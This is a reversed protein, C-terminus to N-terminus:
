LSVRIPHLHVGEIGNAFANPVAKRIINYSGNVDSNILQGNNCNFLGRVIRRSKDYTEKGIIENDLFSCGSTYSEETTIVTIGKENAKYIIQKILKDYPISIFNQNASKVLKSEQKWTKNLGIIITNINLGECYNVISKSACHLYYDIKNDRKLQLKDLKNSWNKNHRKKLDSQLNAKKKNYYQNISKLPKGNIVIPQLGLNNTLTAINDVGLDIGCYKLNDEKIEEIEKEYVIELIYINNKPIIRTQLLKGKVNTKIINNLSKLPTFAFYLYGDKIHTQMNTLTFIYRGNKKKYKPIKPKGLYKNPHKSYDKISVFFSKWNKCLLKLTMQASNSGIDKFAKTKNLQKSLDVYKLIPQNNIFLQRQTYNALNYINKSKLSYEDFLKWAKHNKNIIHREVRQMNFRKKIINM